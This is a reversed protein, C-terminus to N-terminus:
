KILLDLFYKAANNSIEHLHESAPMKEKRKEFFWRFNDQFSMAINAQWGYRYSADKKLEYVLRDVAEKLIVGGNAHQTLTNEMYVKLPVGMKDAKAQLKKITTESIKVEKRM